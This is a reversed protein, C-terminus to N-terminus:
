PELIAGENLGMGAFEAKAQARAKEIIANVEEGCDGSSSGRNDILYQVGKYAGYGVTALGVGALVTKIFSM